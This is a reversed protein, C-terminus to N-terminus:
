DMFVNAPKKIKLKAIAVFIGYWIAVTPWAPLFIMNPYLVPLMLDYLFFSLFVMAGFFVVTMFKPNRNM